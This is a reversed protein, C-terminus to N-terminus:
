GMWDNGIDKGLDCSFRFEVKAGDTLKYRSCGYNPYWGNVRYQWGSLKGCDKEYLNNIGKIYASNYIPTWESELHIGNEQCVRQLVDFVSEGDFFEVEVQELIIGDSPILELKEPNLDELNNLIATCEISFICTYTKTTDTENNEPEVPKPKGDPVPDTQNKDKESSVSSQSPKGTTASNSSTSPKNSTASSTDNGDTSNNTQTHDSTTSSAHKGDTSNNTQTHDSTTSSTDNGDTSNNTQTNDSTTVNSSTDNEEGMKEDPLIKFVPYIKDIPVNLITTDTGTLSVLYVAENGSYATATDATWKDNIYISLVTPFGFDMTENLNIEIGKKTKTFSVSLNIDRTQTIDKGFVTWEYKFNSNEGKFVAVSNENKIEDFTKKSIIGNQPITIPEKLDVPNFDGKCAAFLLLLIVALILSFTRKM